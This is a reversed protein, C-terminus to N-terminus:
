LDEVRQHGPASYPGGVKKVRGASLCCMTNVTVKSELLVNKRAYIM